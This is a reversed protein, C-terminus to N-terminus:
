PEGAAGGAPPEGMTRLFRQQARWLDGWGLRRYPRGHAAAVREVIAALAPLHRHAVTPFLHHTLHLNLGGMWYGLARPAPQWDVATRFAHEDYSHALRGDAPVVFFEPRAWHTGLLSAVLFTSAAMQACLYVGAVAGIGIGHAQMAWAPLGLALVFHAAKSAVFLAWGRAGRLVPEDRLPTRGLRDSWDFVWCVWPLSLAAVVLWYRHQWRFHARWPQSPVQRLFANPEIDLDCGEVNAYSHHFQTHRAIWYDADIGLPLLGVRMLVRSWGKSRLMAGHAVDHLVNVALLMAFWAFAVYGLAFRALEHASLALAYGGVTAAALAGAKAWMRADAFRHDGQAALHAHAERRVDHWFGGEPPLEFRPRKM